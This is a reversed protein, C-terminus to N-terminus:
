VQCAQLRSSIDSPNCSAEKASRLCNKAALPNMVAPNKIERKIQQLSKGGCSERHNSRVKKACIHTLPTSALLHQTRHEAMQLIRLPLLHSLLQPGHWM